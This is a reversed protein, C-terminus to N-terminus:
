NNRMLDLLFLCLEQTADHKQNHSWPVGHNTLWQSYSNQLQFYFNFPDAGPGGWYRMARNVVAGPTLPRFHRVQAEAKVKTNLRDLIQQLRGESDRRFSTIHSQVEHPLSDM